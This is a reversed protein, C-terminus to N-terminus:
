QEVSVVGFQKTGLDSRWEGTEIGKSLNDRGGATSRGQGSEVKLSRSQFRRGEFSEGASLVSVEKYDWLM